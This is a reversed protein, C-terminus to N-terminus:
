DGIGQVVVPAVRSVYDIDGTLMKVQVGLRDPSISTIHSGYPAYWISNNNEIEMSISSVSYYWKLCATRAHVFSFFANHLMDLNSGAAGTIALTGPM